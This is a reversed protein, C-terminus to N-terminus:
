AVVRRGEMSELHRAERECFTWVTSRTVHWAVKFLLRLGSPIADVSQSWRTLGSRRPWLTESGSIKRGATM